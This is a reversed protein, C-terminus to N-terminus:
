HLIQWEDWRYYSPSGYTFFDEPLQVHAGNHMSIADMVYMPIIYNDEYMLEQMTLAIEKRRADDDISIYEAYLADYREARREDDGMFTYASTAPSAYQFAKGNDTESSPLQVLIMDYNKEKYIQDALNGQMLWPNVKVGAERFQQMILGFVDYTTQDTYYYAMDLIDNDFDWGADTLLKKATESDFSVHNALIDAHAEPYNPHMMIPTHKGIGPYFSAITEDDILLSIAKRVNPDKLLEKTKGDARDTLNFLLARHSGQPTINYEVDANHEIIANVQELTTVVKPSIFDLEGAMIATVQADNGGSQYSKFTINKIGAAPWFYEENRIVTFYDPFSVENIKYAGTGIPKKWYDCTDMEDWGLGEFYHEPYVIINVSNLWRTNPATLTFYLKDGEVRMGSITDATGEAYEAYGSVDKLMKLKHSNPSSVYYMYSFFIDNIDMEEGDHFKVGKRAQIWFETYDENSGWNEALGGIRERTVYDSYFLTNFVCSTMLCQDDRHPPEFQSEIGTAQYWMLQLPTESEGAPETQSPATDTTPATTGPATTGQTTEAPKTECGVLFTLVMVLALLLSLQRKM